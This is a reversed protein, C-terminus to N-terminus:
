AKLYSRCALLVDDVTITKLCRVDGSVCKRQRCPRCDYPKEVLTALAQWPSFNAPLTPGFLAVIPTPTSAAIHMPGSDPGVFLAARGILERLEALNFDGALSLVAHPSLTRIEDARPIDQASGVLLV